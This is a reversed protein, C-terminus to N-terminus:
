EGLVIRKALVEPLGAAMIKRATTDIDYPVRQYTLRNSTTDLLAYCAAPNNDRPQGVSGLVAIWRRQSLLPIPKSDFPVHRQPLGTTSENFLAPLHTHGCFTLRQATARFSQVAERPSLLYIWDEPSCGSAHVYLRDDENLDLPLDRLFDRHATGLQRRTWLMATHALAGLTRKDDVASADHNGQVALAGDAVLEAVREVVWGPDPGYGVLDGLFVYSEAGEHAADELCATLAERNAHIDAFLAILMTNPPLHRPSILNPGACAM